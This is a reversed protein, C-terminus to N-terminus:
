FGGNDDRQPVLRLGERRPRDMCMGKPLYKKGDVVHERVVWKGSNHVKVLTGMEWFRARPVSGDKEFLAVQSHDDDILIYGCWACLQRARREFQLPWGAIHITM